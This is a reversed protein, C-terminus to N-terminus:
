SGEDGDFEVIRRVIRGLALRSIGKDVVGTLRCSQGDEMESTLLIEAGSDQFLRQPEYKHLHSGGLRCFARKLIPMFVKPNPSLCASRM